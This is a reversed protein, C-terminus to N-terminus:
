VNNGGLLEAYLNLLKQSETEWNYKKLVAKRGNEGMKKAEELHELLYLLASAHSQAQYPKVLIGCEAERIINATLSGDAPTIVPKGRAMYELIRTQISNKNFAPEPKWGIGAADLYAFMEPYPVREILKLNGNKILKKMLKGHEEDLSAPNLPLGLIVCSVDPYQGIVLGLAELTTEFVKARDLRGGGSCIISSQQDGTGQAKKSEDVKAAIERSTFNHITVCIGRCGAFREQMPETVTIIAALRNAMAREIRDFNWAIPKRLFYPIWTKRLINETYNEHVDYIVPKHTLKQLLWGWPLLEPDHFHYIDAKQRLALRFATSTGLMRQLRNKPKPLALIRVGGVVEDKDHRTILTVEYGVQALSKAQKHFIRVSFTRHATTIICVRKMAARKAIEKKETSSVPIDIGV